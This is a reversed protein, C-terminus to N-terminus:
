SEMPLVATMEEPTAEAETAEAKAKTKAGFFTAISRMPQKSKAAAKAEKAPVKLSSNTVTTSSSTKSAPKSSSSAMGTKAVKSVTEPDFM